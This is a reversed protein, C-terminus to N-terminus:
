RSRYIEFFPEFSVRAERLTVFRDYIDKAHMLVQKADEKELGVEECYASRDGANNAIDKKLAEIETKLAKVGDQCHQYEKDLEDANKLATVFLDMQKGFDIDLTDEIVGSKLEKFLAKGTRLEQELEELDLSDTLLVRASDVQQECRTLDKQWNDTKSQCSVVFAIVILFSWRM